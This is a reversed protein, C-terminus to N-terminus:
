VPDQTDWVQKLCAKYSLIVKFKQDEMRTRWLASPVSMHLWTRDKYHQGTTDPLYQDRATM